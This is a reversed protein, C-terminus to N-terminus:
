DPLKELVITFEIVAQRNSGVWQTELTEYGEATVIYHIHPPSINPWETEFTYQGDSDTYMYARLRDSYRGDEGAQCHALKASTVPKCDPMGLVKGRVVVGKSINIKQTTVPEYHTGTTRHPTPICTDAHTATFPMILSAILIMYKM